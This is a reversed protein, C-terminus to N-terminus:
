FIFYILINYFNRRCCVIPSCNKGPSSLELKLIYYITNILLENKILVIHRKFNLKESVCLACKVSKRKLKVHINRNIYWYIINKVREHSGMGNWSIKRPTEPLFSFDRNECFIFFRSFYARIMPDASSFIRSLLLSM